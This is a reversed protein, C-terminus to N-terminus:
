SVTRVMTEILDMRVERARAGVVLSSSFSALGVGALIAGTIGVPGFRSRDEPLVPAPDAVVSDNVQDEGEPPQSTSESDPQLCGNAEIDALLRANLEFIKQTRTEPTIMAEAQRANAMAEGCQNLTRHASAIVYYAAATEQIQLSEKYCIIADEYRENLYIKYCETLKESVETDQAHAPVGQILSVVLVIIFIPLRSM